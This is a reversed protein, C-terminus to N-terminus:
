GGHSDLLIIFGGLILAGMDRGTDVIRRRAAKVGPFYGLDNLINLCKRWGADNADLREIERFVNNFYKRDVATLPRLKEM